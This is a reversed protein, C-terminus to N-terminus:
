NFAPSFWVRAVMCFAYNHATVTPGALRARFHRDTGRCATPSALPTQKAKAIWLMSCCESLSTKCECWWHSSFTAGTEKQCSWWLVMTDHCLHQAHARWRLRPQTYTYTEMQIQQKQKCRQVVFQQEQLAWCVASEMQEAESGNREAIRGRGTEVNQYKHSLWKRKCLPLWYQSFAAMWKSLSHSMKIKLLSFLNLSNKGRPRM